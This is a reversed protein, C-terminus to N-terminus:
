KTQSIVGLQRRAAAWLAGLEAAGPDVFRKRVATHVLVLKAAPDVYITQGRIGLLAFVRAEGPLIWTQYGYGFFRHATRPRLHADANRVTTAALLWARPIIQREGLRGDHALLLGLRAYDRLVANVCCFAAEQGAADIIWTADAEAGIPQWIKESLYDANSRGTAARLVLGLVQTESSAYYFRTGPAATRENFAAVAAPGGPGLNLFTDAALRSSDDDAAYDERFRVGSSMTLLHRISTLGYETATLEPVYDGARDDISRIRGEEIAIGVLMATLTKAMSWSTFRHTDRRGYQYREVLITDGRAILFGTAPHRVLYEDLSYTKAQFEYAVGAAPDSRRLPHAVAPRAVRRAPLIEDLRSHADVVYPVEWLNTRDARPYEGPGGYDAADPGGTQFVPQGPGVVPPAPAAARCAIVLVAALAILARTIGVPVRTPEVLACALALLRRPM